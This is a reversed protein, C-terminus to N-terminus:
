DSAKPQSRYIEEKSWEWLFFDPSLPTQQEDEVGLGSVLFMITLRKQFSSVINFPQIDM